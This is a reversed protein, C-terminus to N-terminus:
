GGHRSNKLSPQALSASPDKVTYHDAGKEVRASVVTPDHGFVVLANQKVVYALFEEKEKLLTATCIDYGMSFPVAVHHSTPVLDTPYAISRAGDRLEIWQQGLTHGDIRHVWLGPVIEGDGELLNLKAKELVFVNEPLYSARERRNPQRANEYNARQLWVTAQPYVLELTKGDATFRSIGGAHDFHLHTLIVDTVTEPSFGLDSPPTNKIAFIQRQKPAWKDGMGLDVLITRKARRILLGRAAMPICNEDDAAIRKAWINKPVSGFMAGGDLRFTGFLVAEVDFGRFRM